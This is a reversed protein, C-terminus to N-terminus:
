RGPLSAGASLGLTRGVFGGADFYRTDGVTQVDLATRLGNAAPTSVLPRGEVQPM